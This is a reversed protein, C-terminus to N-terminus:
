FDQVRHPSDVKPILAIFTTNIGRTLRGNRHFDSIFRMVDGKIDECFEKIFGFNVGNSCLSKFSDCDWVAVNVEGESFPKILGSGKANSLNKFLLNEVGPRLVEQAAFHEKFHSFVVNRIPHVGEVLTGNVLFSVIANRRRRGSLISHFYKSNADGDTLWLLHSQQWSISTSVHCLSHIDHTVGRLEELNETSLGDEEGKDDLQSLRIKLADIKRPINKVHVSHWEKLASKILKLKERLVYRGM